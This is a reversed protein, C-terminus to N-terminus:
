LVNEKQTTTPTSSPFDFEVYDHKEIDNAEQVVPAEDKFYVYAGYGIAVLLVSQLLCAITIIIKNKM